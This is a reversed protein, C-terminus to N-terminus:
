LNIDMPNFDSPMIEIDEDAEMWANVIMAGYGSLGYNGKRCQYVSGSLGHFLWCDGDEEVSKIGSNLKWSDGDLYGGMWCGFVKYTDQLKLIIWRDPTPISDNPRM